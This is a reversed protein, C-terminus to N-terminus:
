AEGMTVNADNIEIYLDRKNHEGCVFMTFAGEPTDPYDSVVITDDVFAPEGMLAKCVDDRSIKSLISKNKFTITIM